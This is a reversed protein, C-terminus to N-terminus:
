EACDVVLQDDLWYGTLHYVNSKMLVNVEDVYQNAFMQIGDDTETAVILGTLFANEDANRKQFPIVHFKIDDKEFYIHGHFTKEKDKSRIETVNQNMNCNSASIGALVIMSEYNGNNFTGRILVENGWLDALVTTTKGSTFFRWDNNENRAAVAIKAFRSEGNVELPFIFLSYKEGILADAEFIEIEAQDYVFTSISKAKEEKLLNTKELRKEETEDAIKEEALNEPNAKTEEAKEMKLMETSNMKEADTKEQENNKDTASASLVSKEYGDLFDKLMNRLKLYNQPQNKLCKYLEEITCEYFVNELMIRCITKKPTQIITYPLDEELILAFCEVWASNVMKLEKAATEADTDNDASLVIYKQSKKLDDLQQLMKYYYQIKGFIINKTEQM